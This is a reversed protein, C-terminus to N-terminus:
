MNVHAGFLCSKEVSANFCCYMVANGGTPKVMRGWQQVCDLSLKLTETHCDATWGRASEVLGLPV